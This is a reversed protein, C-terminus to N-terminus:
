AGIRNPDASDTANNVYYQTGIGGLVDGYGAALGANRLSELHQQYWNAYKDGGDAYVNYENVYLRTNPAVAHAERYIDAIGTPTYVNWYSGAVQSGTHYSENYIDLESYKNARDGAVGTGVYYGIRESIEGRLDTQSTMSGAAAQSLLTTAWSPQ